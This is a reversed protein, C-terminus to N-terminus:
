LSCSSFMWWFRVWTCAPRTRWPSSLAVHTPFSPDYSSQDQQVWVLPWGFEVSRLHVRRIVVVQDTLASVLVVTLSFLFAVPIGFAALAVLGRHQSVRETETTDEITTMCWM